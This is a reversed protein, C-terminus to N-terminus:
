YRVAQACNATSYTTFGYEYWAKRASKLPYGNSGGEYPYFDGLSAM